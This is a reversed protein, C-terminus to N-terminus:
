EAEILEAKAIQQQWEYRCNFVLIRLKPGLPRRMWICAM